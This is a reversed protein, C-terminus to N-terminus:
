HWSLKYFTQFCYVSSSVRIGDDEAFENLLWFLDIVPPVLLCDEKTAGEPLCNESFATITLYVSYKGNGALEMMKAVINNYIEKLDTTNKKKNIEDALNKLTDRLM